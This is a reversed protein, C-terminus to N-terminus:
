GLRFAFPDLQPQVGAALLLQLPGSGKRASCDSIEDQGVGQVRGVAHEGLMLNDGQGILVPVHEEIGQDIRGLGILVELASELPITFAGGTLHRGLVRGDDLREIPMVVPAAEGTVLRGQVFIEALPCALVYPPPDRM